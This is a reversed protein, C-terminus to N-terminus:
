KTTLRKLLYYNTSPLHDHSMRNESLTGARGATEPPGSLVKRYPRAFTTLFPLACLENKRMKKFKKMGVPIYM